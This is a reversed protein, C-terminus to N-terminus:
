GLGSFGALSMLLEYRLKNWESSTYKLAASAHGLGQGSKTEEIVREGTARIAEGRM